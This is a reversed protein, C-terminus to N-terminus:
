NVKQDTCQAALVTAMLLQLPSQFDLAIRTRPFERRLRALIEAARERRARKSERRAQSPTIGTRAM